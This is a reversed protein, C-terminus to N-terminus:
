TLILRTMSNDRRLNLEKTVDDRRQITADIRKDCRQNTEKLYCNKPPAKAYKAGLGNIKGPGWVKGTFNIKSKM